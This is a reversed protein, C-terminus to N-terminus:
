WFKHVRWDGAIRALRTKGDISQIFQFQISYNKRVGVIANLTVAFDGPKIQNPARNVPAVLQYGLYLGQWSFTKQPTPSQASAVGALAVLLMTTLVFKM